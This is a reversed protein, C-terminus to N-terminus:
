QKKKPEFLNPRVFLKGSFAIFKKLFYKKAANYLKNRNECCFVATLITETKSCPPAFLRNQNSSFKTLCFEVTFRLLYAINNNLKFNLANRLHKRPSFFIFLIISM